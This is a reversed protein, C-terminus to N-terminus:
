GATYGRVFFAANTILLLFSVAVITCVLRRCPSAVSWQAVVPVVPFALITSRPVAQYYSSTLLALTGLGLYTLEPWMRRRGLLALAALLFGAFPIEMASQFRRALQRASSLVDISNSLSRWPWTIYRSWGVRQAVFWDDWLGTATWLWAFYGALAVPPLLLALSRLRSGAGKTPHTELAFMVVIAVFLFIGNIRVLTALACLLGAWVWAQRRACMWAAIALALFPGESYSTMFFLSYPGALLVVVSATGARPGAAGAVYRCLLIAAVAAGAWALLALAVQYEIVTTHGAGFGYALYRGALPYGPFFAVDVSHVGRNLYGLDAITRFYGADGRAYVRFPWAYWPGGVPTRPPAVTTVIAALLFFAGHTMAWVTLGVRTAWAWSAKNAAGSTPPGVADVSAHVVPDIEIPAPSGASRRRHRWITADPRWARQPRVVSSSECTEPGNVGQGNGISM